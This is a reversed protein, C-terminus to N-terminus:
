FEDGFIVVNSFRFSGDHEYNELVRSEISGNYDADNCGEISRVEIMGFWLDGFFFETPSFPAEDDGLFCRDDGDLFLDFLDGLLCFSDGALDAAVDLVEGIDDDM